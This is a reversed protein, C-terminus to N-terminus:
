ENTREGQTVELAGDKFTIHLQEHQQAEAKSSVPKGNALVMAFGRRLTPEVGHSLIHAMTDRAATEATDIKKAAHFGIDVYDKLFREALRDTIRTADNLIGDWQVQSREQALTIQNKALTTISEFCHQAQQEIRETAAVAQQNVTRSVHEVSADALDVRAQVGATVADHLTRAATLGMGLQSDATQLIARYHQSAMLETKGVQKDAAAMLDGYHRDARAQAATLQMQVTQITSTWHEHAQIARTCITEKIHGIVKSPTGFRRNAYEDLITSDREHGIGTFIPTPFRCVLKALLYENLWHLDAQAGGGRIIVVADFPDQVHATHTRVLAQKISSKVQEGQFVAPFYEFHCLGAAALRDAEAQFDGLGAAGDPSIVAVRCFDTPAPLMRNKNSEGENELRTRIDRLRAEMDGMTFSPDIDTITLGFGYQGKFTPEVLVLVKMGNALLTGTAQAFKDRIAAAKGRWIMARTKSLEVGNVDRDVAQLYCHGAGTANLEAIEFRVWVAQPFTRVLAAEVQNLLQTLSIGKAAPAAPLEIEERLWAHFHAIDLGEPVFYRGAVPDRVAGLTLARAEDEAPIALYITM